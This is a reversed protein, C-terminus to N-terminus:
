VKEDKKVSETTRQSHSEEKPLEPKKTTSTVDIEDENMGRKFGRIAEGLSKGLDPLRKPGFFVLVIVLVLMVHWFSLGGM